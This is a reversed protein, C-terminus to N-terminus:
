ILWSLFNLSFTLFFSIDDPAPLLLSKLRMLGAAGTPDSFGKVRVSIGHM